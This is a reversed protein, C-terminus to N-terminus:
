GVNTFRILDPVQDVSAANVVGAPFGFGPIM